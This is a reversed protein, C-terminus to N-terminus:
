GSQLRRVFDMVVGTWWSQQNTRAFEMFSAVADQKYMLKMCIFGLNFLAKEHRPNKVVLAKLLEVSRGFKGRQYNLVSAVWLDNEDAAALEGSLRSECENLVRNFEEAPLAFAQYQPPVYIDNKSPAIEHEFWKRVEKALIKYGKYESVMWTIYDKTLEALLHFVSKVGVNQPLQTYSTILRKDEDADIRYEIMGTAVSAM